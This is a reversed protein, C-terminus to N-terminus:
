EVMGTEDGRRPHRPSRAVTDHAKAAVMLGESVGDPKFDTMTCTLTFKHHNTFTYEHDSLHKFPVPIRESGLALIEQSRSPEHAKAGVVGESM